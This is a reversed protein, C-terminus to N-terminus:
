DFFEHDIIEGKENELRYRIGFCESVERNRVRWKLGRLTVTQGSETAGDLLVRLLDQDRRFDPRAFAECLCRLLELNRTLPSIEAPLGHLWKLFNQSGKNWAQEFDPQSAALRLVVERIATLLQQIEATTNM